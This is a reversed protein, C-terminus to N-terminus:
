LIIGTTSFISTETDDCGCNSEPCGIASSQFGPMNAASACLWDKMRKQKIEIRQKLTDQYMTVGSIKVNEGYENDTFFIGNTGAQMTIFPTAEYMVAFGCLDKLHISWLAQYQVTTFYITSPSTQQGYVIVEYNSGNYHRLPDIVINLGSITYDLTQVLKQGNQLVFVSVATDTVTLIGSSSPMVLTNTNSNTFLNRTTPTITGYSGKEALLINYFDDGLAPKVWRFEADEIHPAVLSKDLRIDAPNPRGLGGQVVENAQILSM